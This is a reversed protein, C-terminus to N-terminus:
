ALLHGHKQHLLVGMVRKAEGIATVDHLGASDNETASTALQQSVGLHTGGIEFAPPSSHASTRAPRRHTRGSRGSMSCKDHPSAAQLPTRICREARRIMKAIASANPAPAALACSMAIATTPGIVPEFAARPSCIVRPALIATASMLALPPTSPLFSLRM